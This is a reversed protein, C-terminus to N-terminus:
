ASIEETQNTTRPPRGPKKKAPLASQGVQVSAPAIVGAAVAAHCAPCSCNSMPAHPLPGGKGERALRGTRRAAIQERDKDLQYSEEEDSLVQTEQKM